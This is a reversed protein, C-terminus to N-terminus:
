VIGKQIRRLTIIGVGLMIILGGVVMPWDIHEGLFVVSMLIAMFPILLTFASLKGVDGQHMMRQWSIHTLSVLVAQYVLVPGFVRWDNSPLGAIAGPEFMLSGAFTFPVAFLSMLCIYSAPHVSKLHKMKVYSYSLALTSFLMIGVGAPNGALDPEGLMVIVGIAAIGMGMWTRWRIKEGFFIAGLITAFVVQTQLLVSVSAADLMELGIFLTGIHLVNMFVSIQLITWLATRGTKQIFPLFVLGTTIFRLMAATLPPVEQVAIKIAIINGAWLVLVLFLRVYDPRSLPM